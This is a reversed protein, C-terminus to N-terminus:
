VERFIKLMIICWEVEMYVEMHLVFEVVREVQNSWEIATTKCQHLYILCAGDSSTKAAVTMFTAYGKTFFNPMNTHLLMAIKLDYLLLLLLAIKNCHGFSMDDKM